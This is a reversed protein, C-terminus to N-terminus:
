VGGIEDRTDDGEKHRIYWKKGRLERHEAQLLQRTRSISSPEVYKRALFGVAFMKFSFADSRINPNQLGWIKLFLLRDDDRTEPVQELCRKVTESLDKIKKVTISQGM